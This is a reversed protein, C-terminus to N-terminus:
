WMMVAIEDSCDQPEVNCVKYATLVPPTSLKPRLEKWKGTNSVRQLPLGDRLIDVQTSGGSWNLRVEVLRGGYEVVSALGAPKPAVAPTYSATLTVGSFSSYPHLMVFWSGAQTQLDSCTETNGSKYPRCDYASSSPVAGYRVYLDADGTGNAIRVSLGTAGPPVDLRYYLPQGQPASLNPVPVANKLVGSLHTVSLQQTISRSAGDDDTVTLTVKYNGSATYTHVPSATTATGGDGFTWARSVITGDADSSADSFTVTLGEANFGFLAIPAVNNSSGVEFLVAQPTGPKGSADTGQVYLTHVGLSLGTTPVHGTVTEVPANFAGDAASLAIPAAGPAWPPLDLYARASAIAHVPENGNSQNFGRDDVIASVPLPTGPAVTALGTSVSTTDPGTPLLYPAHLNRAAYRLAAFNDPFTSSEFSDCDEFFDVGLEITYSPVGLLGYFTDDTTGDTPYLGVSQQPTYGNFSALRRGLTQLATSNPAPTATDGWSWLVLQSYSHIDFFLGRYDDPAPASATDARRDPFVGGSYVGGMGPMGAAYQVINKTEPESGPTPGRYTEDCPYGSSGGAATNWHFPFNRNLDIGVSSGGCSGRTNNTNKRWLVGTEARKRGDPNAHLVFHFRFNDLLWTAEADRGHQTVLWEAFRTMLEATTYERAHIASVVVMDAKNPVSANTASNTLRLARMSYGAQPNQSREWSPGIEVISALGPAQLTLADMAGYTEEVTRYCAYGPISKLGGPRLLATQIRQLRTTAEEDIEVRLGASRLVDLDEATAETRVTKKARDVMLHQFRSAVARVQAEQEYHATVFVPLPAAAASSASTATLLLALATSRITM